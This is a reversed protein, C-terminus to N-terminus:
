FGCHLDFTEPALVMADGNCPHFITTYGNDALVKISLIFNTKLAALIDTHRANTSLQTIPLLAQHTTNATQGFAVMVTKNKNGTCALNDTEKNYHATAGSDLLSTKNEELLNIFDADAALKAERKLSHREWPPKQKQKSTNLPPPLPMPEQIPPAIPGTAVLYPFSKSIKDMEVKEPHWQETDERGM